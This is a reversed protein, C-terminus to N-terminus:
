KGVFILEMHDLIQNALQLRNDFHAVQAEHTIGGMMGGIRTTVECIEAVVRDALPSKNRLQERRDHWGISDTDGASGYFAKLEKRAAKIQELNILKRDKTNQM